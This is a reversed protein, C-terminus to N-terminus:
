PKKGICYLNQKGRIYIRGDLYAPSCTSHEELAAKGVETLKGDTSLIRMVGKEDMLHIKDGVLTPSSKFNADLEKEVTKKGDKSNYYSLLGDTTVTLTFQATALPSVIDPLGDESIWAVHTATVNGAGGTRIAALKAGTSVAYVLGEAYVPSPAVDGDLVKARWLEKGAAPDYAMVWPNGCTILEDRTGTAAIIPTAWSAGVPRKVEWVTKGTRFDLALLTGKPKAMNGQDILVIVLKGYMALSSSQGYTNVFRGLNRVWLPKGEFDFCAIDGNAFLAAARRGDTVMTPCAFGTEDLLEPPEGSGEATAVPKQWLLKGTDTDFCYVERKSDTAGSLFLRNGWVVPSNEGPLPVPTKWLINEGSKGNWTAPANTYAAIGLGEAGRFRPWHKRLEEITPPTEAVAAAGDPSNAADGGAPGTYIAIALVAAAGITGGVAAVAWRALRAARVAKRAADSVPQPMPLRRRYAAARTAAILFVVFGALALYGGTQSFAQRRFFDRRLELDRVRLSEQLPKRTADDTAKLIGARLGALEESKQIELTATQVHRVGLFIGVTLCFAAAVITTALAARYRAQVAATMPTQNDTPSATM